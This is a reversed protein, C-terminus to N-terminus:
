LSLCERAASCGLRFGGLTILLEEKEGAVALDTQRSRGIGAAMDLCCRHTPSTRRTPRLRLQTGPRVGAASNGGLAPRPAPTEPAADRHRHRAPRQGRRRGSRRGDVTRRALHPARQPAPRGPELLQFCQESLTPQREATPRGTGAQLGREGDLHEALAPANRAEDTDAEILAVRLHRMRSSGETAVRHARRRVRGRQPALKRLM